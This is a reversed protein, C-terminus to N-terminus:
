WRWASPSIRWRGASCSIPARRASGRRASWGPAPSRLTSFKLRPWPAPKVEALSERLAAPRTLRREHQAEREVGDGVRRRPRPPRKAGGRREAAGRQIENIRRGAKCAAARDGFRVRKAWSAPAFDAKDLARKALPKARWELLIEAGAQNRRLGHGIRRGIASRPRRRTELVARDATEDMAEFIGVPDFEGPRDAAPHRPGAGVNEGPGIHQRRNRQM